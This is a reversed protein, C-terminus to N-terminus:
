SLHGQWTEGGPMHQGAFSACDAPHIYAACMMKYAASCPCISVEVTAATLDAMVFRPHRVKAPDVMHKREEAEAAPQQQEADALPETETSILAGVYAGTYACWLLIARESGTWVAQALM